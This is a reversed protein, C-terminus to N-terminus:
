KEWDEITIKKGRLKVIVKQGKRWKLSNLSERPLTVGLSNGHDYIKRVNQEKLKRRM